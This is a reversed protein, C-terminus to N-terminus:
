PKNLPAQLTMVPAIPTGSVPQQQAQTAQNQKVIQKVQERKEQPLQTYAHYKERAAQRQEPTLKAWTALRSDFRQKAKPDLDHYHQALRKLHHQQTEPLTSWLPYVPILAQQESPTLKQWPEPAARVFQIHFTFCLALTIILSKM